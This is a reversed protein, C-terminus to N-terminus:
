ALRREEFNWFDKTKVTVEDPFM